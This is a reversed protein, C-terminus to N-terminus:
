PDSSHPMYNENGIGLILKHDQAPYKSRPLSIPHLQVPRPFESIEGAPKTVVIPSTLSRSPFSQSKELIKLTILQKAVQLVVRTNTMDLRM